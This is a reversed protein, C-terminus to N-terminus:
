QLKASVDVFGLVKRLHESFLEAAYPTIHSTDRYLPGNADRVACMKQDCLIPRIDVLRARGSSAAAAFIANAIRQRDEYQQITPSLDVTRGLWEARALATPVDYETEPTQSLISVRVGLEQLADLTRALGRAFVQQNLQVSVTESESDRILVKPGLEGRFREGTAYISWRSVLIVHRISPHAAIYEVVSANLAACTHYSKATQTVGLLPVCGGRGAFAGSLGSQRAALDFGPLISAAHSDGWVIFSPKRADASNADGLRCM